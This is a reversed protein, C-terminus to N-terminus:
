SANELGEEIIKEFDMNIGCEKCQDWLLSLYPVDWDGRKLLDCYGNEQIPKNPNLSWHPCKKYENNVIIYCYLGMPIEPHTNSNEPISSSM